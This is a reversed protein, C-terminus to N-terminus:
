TKRKRECPLLAPAGTNSFKVGPRLKIMWADFQGPTKPEVSEALWPVNNGKSDYGLTVTEGAQAMSNVLGQIIFDRHLGASLRVADQNWYLIDFAPPQKGLLYNNVVYNWVLDNPRLWTFM